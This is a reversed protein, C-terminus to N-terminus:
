FGGRKQSGTHTKVAEKAQGADAEGKWFENELFRKKRVEHLESAQKTLTGVEENLFEWRSGSDSEKKKEVNKWLRHKKEGGTFKPRKLSCGGWREKKATVEKL